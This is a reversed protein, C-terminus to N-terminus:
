KERLARNMLNPAFRRVPTKGDPKCEVIREVHADGSSESVSKRERSCECRRRDEGMISMLAESSESGPCRVRDAPEIM